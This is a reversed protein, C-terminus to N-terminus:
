NQKMRWMRSHRGTIHHYHGDGKVRHQLVSNPLRLKLAAGNETVWEEMAERM